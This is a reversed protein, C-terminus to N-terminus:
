TACASLQPAEAPTMRSQGHLGFQGTYVGAEHAWVWLRDRVMEPEAAPGISCTGVLMMLAIGIAGPAVSRM